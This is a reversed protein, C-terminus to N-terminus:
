TDQNRKAKLENLLYRHHTNKAIIMNKFDPKNDNMCLPILAICEVITRGEYMQNTDINLRGAFVIDKGIFDIPIKGPFLIFYDKETRVITREYKRLYFLRSWHRIRDDRKLYYLYNSLRDRQILIKGHNTNEFVKGEMEDSANKNLLEDENVAGKYLANIKKLAVQKERFPLDGMKQYNILAHDYNLYLLKVGSIIFFILASLFCIKALVIINKEVPDGDPITNNYDFRIAKVSTIKTGQFVLTDSVIRYMFTLASFYFIYFMWQTLIMLRSMLLPIGTMAIVISTFVMINILVISHKKRSFLVLLLAGSVTILTYTKIPIDNIILAFFVMIVITLLIEKKKTLLPYVFLFLLGIYALCLLHYIGKRINLYNIYQIYLKIINGTFIEPHNKLNRLGEKKHYHYREKIGKVGAKATERDVKSSWIGFSASTAAYFSDASNDSIAYIDHVAKQRMLWPTLIVAMGMCITIISYIIKRYAINEQKMLYIICLVLGPFSIITLTRSLNSLGFFLGSIFLLKMRNEKIGRLLFYISISFFLFGTPESMMTLAYNMQDFNIILAVVTAIAVIRNSVIEGILYVFPIALASAVINVIKGVSFSHGFWTYFCALIMPFLPRRASWEGTMGKGQAINIALKDWGQADSFPIGGISIYAFTLDKHFYFYILRALLAAMFLIAALVVHNNLPSSKTM